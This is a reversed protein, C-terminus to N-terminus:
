GCGQRHGNHASTINSNNRSYSETLTLKKLKYELFMLDKRCSPLLICVVPPVHHDTQYGVLHKPIIKEYKLKLPIQHIILM